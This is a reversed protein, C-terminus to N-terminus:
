IGTIAPHIETALPSNVNNNSFILMNVFSEKKNSYKLRIKPIPKIQAQGAMNEFFDRKKPTHANPIIKNKVTNKIIINM